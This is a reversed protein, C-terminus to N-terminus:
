KRPRTYKERSLRLAKQRNKNICKPLPLTLAYFPNSTLNDIALKIIIQYNGLKVLDDEEYEKGFERSLVQADQAGVLFAVLTGINGFIAKQIDETLQGIYQNAVAINLRYKRAESLIKIQLKEWPLNPSSLAARKPAINM